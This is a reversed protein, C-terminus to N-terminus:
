RPPDGLTAPSVDAQAGPAHVRYIRANRERDAPGYVLTFAEPHADAWVREIPYGAQDAINFRGDDPDPRAVFLFDIREAILSALWARYDPHLRDWGPRPTPWNPAGQALAERHYDHLRWGRHADVNIYAVDHRQWRGMLYYVLNTGAYAIRARRPGALRDLRDWARALAATPFAPRVDKIQGWVVACPMAVTAATAIVARLWRGPSPLRHASAWALAAVLALLGSAAPLGLLLGVDRWGQVASWQSSTPIVPVPGQEANILGGSLGWSSQRGLPAFPWISPTLLHLVMLGAATWRLWRARDLLCGLTVTSLGIAPLLFRQQTRYPILWYLAVNAVALASVVVAWRGEPHGRRPAWAAFLGAVWLPAMRPDVVNMAADALVRIAGAPVYFPSHRMASSDYLGPLWVRGLVSVQLPYFPNGMLGANRVFWYGAMLWPSLALLMLHGLRARLPGGRALVAIAAGVLLPPVFVTGIAKTGWAGGAALAGLTLTGAGGDRRAYELFFYAAALYGAVFMVDVNAVFSYLQMPMTTAFLSAALVSASEGAGLRRAIAFTSTAALILFLFSCTRALIDGGAVAMLAAFLVEGGAPLYSVATDGFPAPIISLRGSKWWQAAFYLHYIPADTLAKEPLLWMPIGMFAAAWLALAAGLTAAGDIPGGASAPRAPPRPALARVLGGLALGAAGWGLLPGRALYGSLGLALAGLTAWAWALVAAGIARSLGDPQRFGHGSAWWGGLGLMGGWLLAGLAGAM